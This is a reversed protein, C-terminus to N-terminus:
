GPPPPSPPARLNGQHRFDGRRQLGARVILQRRSRKRVPLVSFVAVQDLVIVKVGHTITFASPQFPPEFCAARTQFGRVPRPLGAEVRARSVEAGLRAAVLITFHCKVRDTSMNRLSAPLANPQLPLKQAGVRPSSQPLLRAAISELESCWPAASTSAPRPQWSSLALGASPLSRPAPATAAGERATVTVKARTVYLTLARRRTSVITCSTDPASSGPVRVAM